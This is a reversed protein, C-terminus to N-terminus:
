VRRWNSPVLDRTDHFGRHPPGPVFPIDPDSASGRFWQRPAVVTKEAHPNLWAGWWSFSSNAIIHSDCRSMLHLDIVEHNTQVFSFQKGRFRQRCYPIDDSFVLFRTEHPFQDMAKEYYGTAALDVFLPHNVYDGRRVHISCTPSELLQACQSRCQDVIWVKPQFMRRIEDACHAFYRESQFYGVLQRSGAFEPQTFFFTSERYTPLQDASAPLRPLSGAFLDAYPWESFAFEWGRRRAEGITAAIQFLQNGLRGLRGLQQFTVLM